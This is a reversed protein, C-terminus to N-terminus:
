NGGGLSLNADSIEAPTFWITGQEGNVQVGYRSESPLGTVQFKYVDVEYVCDLMDSTTTAPANLGGTGIVTGSPSVVTVQSGQGVNFSNNDCFSFDGSDTMVTLKGTMTVPSSGCATGLLLATVAPAAALGVKRVM